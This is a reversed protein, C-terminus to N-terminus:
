CGTRRKASHYDTERDRLYDYFSSGRVAGVLLALAERYLTVSSVPAQETALNQQYTTEFLYNRFRHVAELSDFYARYFQPNTKLMSVAIRNIAINCEDRSNQEDSNMRANAYSEDNLLQATITDAERMLIDYAAFPAGEPSFFVEVDEGDRVSVAQERIFKQATINKMWQAAFTNM